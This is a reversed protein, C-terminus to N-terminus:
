ALLLLIAYDRPGTRARRDCSGLLRRVQDPQLSKPLDPLRWGAVSPVVSVLQIPAQGTPHLWGLPSRLALWGRLM